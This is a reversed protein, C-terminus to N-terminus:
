GFRTYSLEYTELHLNALTSPTIHIYIISYLYLLFQKV